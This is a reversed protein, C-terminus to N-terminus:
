ERMWQLLSCQLYMTHIFQFGTERIRGARQSGSGTNRQWKANSGKTVGIGGWGKTKILFHHTEAWDSSWRGSTPTLCVDDVLDVSWIQDGCLAASRCRPEEPETSSWTICRSAFCSSNLSITATFTCLLAVPHFFWLLHALCLSQPSFKIWSLLSLYWMCSAFHKHCKIVNFHQQQLGTIRKVINAGLQSCASYVCLAM